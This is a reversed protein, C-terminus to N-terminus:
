AVRLEEPVSSPASSRPLSSPPAATLHPALRHDRGSARRGLPGSAVLIEGEPLPVPDKGFNSVVEWGGSRRFRLVEDHDTPIWEMSEDTQLERRLQAARRYLSLTSGPDGSEAEVSYHGFWLPQPLHSGDDGFGFSSGSRTWPLPVRCGDRGVELERNRFFSPDARLSDPIEAVEQLGLEEGQYLYASGPLAM